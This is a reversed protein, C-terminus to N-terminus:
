RTCHEPFFGVRLADSVVCAVYLFVVDGADDCYLYSMNFTCDNIASINQLPCNNNSFCGATPTCAILSAFASSTSACVRWNGLLSLTQNVASFDTFNVAAGMPPLLPRKSTPRVVVDSMSVGVVRKRQVVSVCLM